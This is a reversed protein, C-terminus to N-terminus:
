CSKWAVNSEKQCWHPCWRHLKHAHFIDTGLDYHGYHRNSCYMFTFHRWRYQIWASFAAEFGYFFLKAIWYCDEKRAGRALGVRQWGHRTNHHVAQRGLRSGRRSAGRQEAAKLRQWNTLSLRRWACTRSWGHTSRWGYSRKGRFVRGICRHSSWGCCWRRRRREPSSLSSRWIRPSVEHVKFMYLLQNMLRSLWGAEITCANRKVYEPAASYL